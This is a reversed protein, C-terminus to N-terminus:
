VVRIAPFRITIITTRDQTTKMDLTGQHMAVM